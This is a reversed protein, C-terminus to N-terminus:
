KPRSCADSALSDAKHNGYWVSYEVSTIDHPPKRHSPCFRIEVNLKDMRARIDKILDLNEPPRNKPTLWGRKKWGIYWLTLAKQSYTSDTYIILSTHKRKHSIELAKKIALLEMANNTVKRGLTSSRICESVNDPHDDDWFIGIGGVADQRGNSPVAGDTFVIKPTTVM